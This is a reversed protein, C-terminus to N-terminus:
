PTAACGAARRRSRRARWRRALDDAVTNATRVAPGREVASVVAAPRQGEGRGAAEADEDEIEPPEVVSLDEDDVLDPSM